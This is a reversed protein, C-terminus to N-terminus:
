QKATCEPCLGKITIEIKNIIYVPTDQKQKLSYMFDTCCIIKKCNDCVFHPHQDIHAYHTCGDHCLAYVSGNGVTDIAHAIGKKVFTQLTRYITIRDAPYLLNEIDALSLNRNQSIMQELVLMRMPTPKVEYDELIKIINSNM